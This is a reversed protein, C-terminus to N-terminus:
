EPVTVMWRLSSVLDNRIPDKLLGEFVQHSPRSFNILAGSVGDRSVWTEKPDPTKGGQIM